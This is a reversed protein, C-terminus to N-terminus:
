GVLFALALFALGAAMTNVPSPQAPRWFAAVAFLVIAVVLCLTRPTIEM